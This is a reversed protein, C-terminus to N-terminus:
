IVYIHPIYNDYKKKISSINLLLKDTRIMGDYNKVKIIKDNLFSSYNNIKGSLFNDLRQFIIFDEESLKVFYFNHDNNIIKFNKISFLLGLLNVDEVKYNLKIINKKYKFLVRQLDFNEKKLVLYM